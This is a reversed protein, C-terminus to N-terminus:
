KKDKQEEVDPNYGDPFLKGKKNKMTPNFENPQLYLDKNADQRFFKNRWNDAKRPTKIDSFNRGVFEKFSLKGDKDADKEKFLEANDAFASSLTLCLVTLSLTLLKTM